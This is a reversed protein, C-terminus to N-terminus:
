VNNHSFCRNPAQFLCFHENVLILYEIGFNGWFLIYHMSLKFLPIRHWMKKSESTQLYYQPEYLIKFEFWLNLIKIGFWGWVSYNTDLIQGWVDVLEEM